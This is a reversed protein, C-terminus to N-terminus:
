EDRDPATVDALDADTTTELFRRASEVDPFVFTNGNYVFGPANGYEEGLNEQIQVETSMM